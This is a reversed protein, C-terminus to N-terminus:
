PGSLKDLFTVGVATASWLDKAMPYLPGPSKKNGIARAKGGYRDILAQRVHSDQARSTQCLHAKVDKRYVYHAPRKAAEIFKGIWVCTEFTEFGVPMGYSAVMEIALHDYRTNRIQELAQDNPLHQASIPVAGDFLVLASDYTGPDVALVRVDAFGRENIGAGCGSRPSM